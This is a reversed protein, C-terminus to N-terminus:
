YIGAYGDFPLEETYIPMDLLSILFVSACYQFPQEETYIPVDVTGHQTYGEYLNYVGGISQIGRKYISNQVGRV